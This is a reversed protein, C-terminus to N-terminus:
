DVVARFRLTTSPTGNDDSFATFSGQPTIRIHTVASDTLFAGSGTPVYNFTLGDTSFAVDDTLDGPGGWNLSLGSSVAGQALVFASPGDVIVSVEPPLRDVLAITGADVAQGPNSLDIAYEIVSGSIAYPAASGMPDSVVTNSKTANLETSCSEATGVTVTVSPTCQAARLAFNSTTMDQWPGGPRQAQWGVAGDCCGEFGVAEYRYWGPQLDITGELTEATQNFNFAWWLDDNWQEELTVGNVKLDGGHGFDAGYRFGWTGATASTVELLGSVCWAFNGNTGGLSRNNIGSISSRVQNYIENTAAAFASRAEAASTPDVSTVRSQLRLGSQPFVATANGISTVGANGLYIILDTTTNAALTGPNVYLTATRASSDWDTVLFDVATTNDSLFVRVDDGASSFLYTAPIDAATLDIRIEGSYPSAATELSVPIRHGWACDWAAAPANLAAAAIIALAQRWM